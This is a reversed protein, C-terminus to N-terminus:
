YTKVVILRQDLIFAKKTVLAIVYIHIYTCRIKVAYIHWNSSDVNKNKKQFAKWYHVFMLVYKQSYQEVPTDNLRLTQALDYVAKTTVGSVGDTYYETGIGTAVLVKLRHEYIFEFIPYVLRIIHDYNEITLGM